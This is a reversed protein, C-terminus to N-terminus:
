ITLFGRWSTQETCGSSLPTMLTVLWCVPKHTAQALTRQEYHARFFNAVVLSPTPGVAEGDIQGGLSIQKNLYTVNSIGKM